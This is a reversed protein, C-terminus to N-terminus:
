WWNNISNKTDRVPMNREIFWRAFDELKSNFSIIHRNYSDYDRQYYCCKALIYDIYMADYPPTIVTEDATPDSIEVYKEQGEQSYSKAYEEKLMAGLEDCWKIKEQMTYSNPYLRDANEIVEIIKM